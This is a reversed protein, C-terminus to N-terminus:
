PQAAGGTRATRAIRDTAPVAVPSASRFYAELAELDLVGGLMDRGQALVPYGSGGGALFSSVAVRYGRGDQLPEGHLLVESTRAGPPQSLDYRYSFGQSVSLVRTRESASTARDFQQELLARIQAGTLTQVVLNNGFPQVAFLQGYRVLGQGDPALDARIGGAHMFSLEAGGNEPARTAWWQADAILNGLASEGSMAERRTANGAMQGVPRQALPAAAAQYPAILDLLRADPAFVPYLQAGPPAAANATSGQNASANAAHVVVNRASKHVLRRTGTDFRLAIDTLLTGHQGASTLLFPRQPNVSAYDCVYAQHTHGSVVVDVTSDLRELIPVIAGSLGACSAELIGATTSGGEHLALVVIDAGQARLQAAQANATAAEDAFRLGAVGSPAVLAPTARLTMGIFGVTVSAGNEAFRKTGTAPLLAQGDTRQVNAALFGFRAGGFPQSIQCPARLTFQECGGHQLRLLERWGRDFEHNGVANFDLGILNMAEVTPEDLFLSSVMPSAGVLDGASVVAHHPTRAKLTAIASALTAVGGAQLAVTGGPGPVRLSQQPAELHGHFDNFGILAIDIVQPPATTGGCGALGLALGWGLVLSFTKFTAGAAVRGGYREVAHM